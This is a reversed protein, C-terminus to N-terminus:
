ASLVVGATRASRRLESDLTALPLGQLLALNLYAADYESLGHQRAAALIQKFAQETDV